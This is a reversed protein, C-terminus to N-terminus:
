ARINRLSRALVAAALDLSREMRQAPGLLRAPGGRSLLRDNYVAGPCHRRLESTLYAFNLDRSMKMAAGFGEYTMVNQRFVVQPRNGAYLYLVRECEETEIEEQREIKKTMPIGGSLLTKGLSLKRESITVLESNREISTGPLLLDIDCYPVEVTSGEMSEIRLSRADFEFRRVTYKGAGSRLETVDMVLTSMGSKNLKAALAAAQHQDAFCAVVVPEGGIMRQRAEYATLGLAVALAQVLADTEKIWGNIVVIHMFLRREDEKAPLVDIKAQEM